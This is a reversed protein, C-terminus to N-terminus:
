LPVQVQAQIEQAILHLVAVFVYNYIYNHTSFMSELRKAPAFLSM